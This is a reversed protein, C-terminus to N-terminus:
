KFSVQLPCLENCFKKSNNQRKAEDAPAEDDSKDDVLGNDSDLMGKDEDGAADLAADFESATGTDLHGLDPINYDADNVL